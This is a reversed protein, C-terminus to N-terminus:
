WRTYWADKDYVKLKKGLFLVSINFTIISLLLWIIANNKKLVM